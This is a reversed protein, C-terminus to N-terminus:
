QSKEKQILETLQPVAQFLDAKIAYDAISMIPADPDKNIAVITKSDKMGALHQIAGSIGACIYLDPAIIKGTQGVQLDNSVFGADVAARSAGVAGGLLDALKELMVFNEGNKMGRGGSIVVSASQLDPRDSSKVDDSVWQTKTFNETSEVNAVEASNSSNEEAKDFSSGRVTIVKVNDKSKVTALANGAYIPRVFTDNDVVKIIDSIPSVDLRAAVRPLLNKGFTSAPGLVHTYSNQSQLNSVVPTLNEATNLHDGQAVFVKSVGAVQALKKGLDGVQKGALLVHIDKGLQSAAQITSLTAGDIKNGSHEAVVLCNAAGSSFNRRQFRFNASKTHPQAKFPRNISSFKQSPKSFTNKQRLLLSSSVNNKKAYSKQTITKTKRALQM